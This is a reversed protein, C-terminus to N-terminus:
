CLVVKNRRREKTKREENRRKEKKTKRRKRRQGGSARRGKRTGRLGYVRTGADMAYPQNVDRIDILQEGARRPGFGGLAAYVSPPEGGAAIQAEGLDESRRLALHFVKTLPVDHDSFTSFIPREVRDLAPRYGGAHNTGPVADAFCLHSVAPQLLLASHVRRPPSCIACCRDWAARAL